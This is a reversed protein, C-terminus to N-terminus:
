IRNSERFADSQRYEGQSDIKERVLSARVCELKERRPIGLKEKVEESNIYERLGTIRDM